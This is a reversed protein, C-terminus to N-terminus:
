KKEKNDRQVLVIKAWKGVWDYEYKQRKIM